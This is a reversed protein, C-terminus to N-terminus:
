SDSNKVTLAESKWGQQSIDLFLTQACQQQSQPRQTKKKKKWSPSDASLAAGHEGAAGPGAAGEGAPLLVQSIQPQRPVGASQAPHVPQLHLHRHGLVLDQPRQQPRVGGGGGKGGRGGAAFLSCSPLFIYFTKKKEIM